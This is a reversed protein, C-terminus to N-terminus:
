GKRGAQLMDDREAFWLDAYGCDRYPEFWPGGTTYHLNSIDAAPLPPDYDVLHNWRHPIAGILPAVADWARGAQLLVVGLLHAVEPLGPADQEIVRLVGEAAPDGAQYLAAAQQFRRRLAPATAGIGGQKRM